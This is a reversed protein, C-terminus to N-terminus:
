SILSHKHACRREAVVLELDVAAPQAPYQGRERHREGFQLGPGGLRQRRRHQGVHGAPAPLSCVWRALTLANRRQPSIGRINTPAARRSRDTASNPIRSGEGSNMAGM